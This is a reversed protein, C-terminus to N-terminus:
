TLRQCSSSEGALELDDRVSRFPPAGNYLHLVTPGATVVGQLVVGGTILKVQALPAAM